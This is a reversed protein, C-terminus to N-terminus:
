EYEARRAAFHLTAIIQEILDDARLHFSQPFTIGLAKAAKLNILLQFKIPQLATIRGVYIGAQRFTEARGGVILLPM